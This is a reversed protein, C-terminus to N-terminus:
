ADEMIEIAKGLARYYARLEEATRPHDSDFYNMRGVIKSNREFVEVYAGTTAPHNPDEHEQVRVNTNIKM